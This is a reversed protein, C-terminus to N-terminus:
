SSTHASATRPCQHTALYVHKSTVDYWIQIWVAYSHTAFPIRLPCLAMQRSLSSLNVDCGSWTWREEFPSSGNLVLILADSFRLTITFQIRRFCMVLTSSAVPFILESALYQTLQADRALQLDPQHLSLESM